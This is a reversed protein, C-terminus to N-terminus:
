TVYRVAERGFASERLDLKRLKSGAARMVQVLLPWSLNSRRNSYVVDVADLHSREVASLTEIIPEIDSDQIEDLVLLLTQKEKKNRQTRVQCALKLVFM